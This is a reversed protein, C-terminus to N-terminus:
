QYTLTFRYNKEHHYLVHENLKFNLSFMASIYAQEFFNCFVNDIENLM